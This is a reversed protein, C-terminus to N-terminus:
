QSAPGRYYLGGPKPLSQAQLRSNATGRTTIRTFCHSATATAVCATAELLLPPLLARREARGRGKGMVGMFMISLELIGCRCRVYSRCHEINTASQHRESASGPVQCPAFECSSYKLRLGLWRSTPFQSHPIVSRWIAASARRSNVPGAAQGLQGGRGCYIM